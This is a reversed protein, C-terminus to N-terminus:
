SHTIIIPGAPIFDQQLVAKVQASLNTLVAYTNTEANLVLVTLTYKSFNQQYRLNKDFTLLAQFDNALMLKLLEGNKKGSWGKDWVTYVEHEPFDQKLPKPLNEDLLLRM